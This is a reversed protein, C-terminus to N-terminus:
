NMPADKILRDVAIEKRTKSRPSESASDAIRKSHSLLSAPGPMNLFQRLLSVRGKIEQCRGVIKNQTQVVQQPLPKDDSNRHEGNKASKRRWEV